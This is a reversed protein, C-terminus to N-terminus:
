QVGNIKLRESILAINNRIVDNLPDLCLAALYWARSDAIRGLKFYLRGIEAFVIVASIDTSDTALSKLISIADKLRGDDEMKAVLSRVLNIKELSHNLHQICDATAWYDIPDPKVMDVVPAARALLQAMNKFTSGGVNMVRGHGLILMDVLAEKVSDSGRYVNSPYLRGDSDPMTAQWNTSLDQKQVYHSKKRIRVNPNCAARAETREDDSCVFFSSKSYRCTLGDVEEDSYGVKLDTRRLHIGYFPKSGLDQLLFSRAKSRIGDDIRTRRIAKLLSELPIWKPILAPYFFIPRGDERTKECFSEISSFQYASVFEEGLTSASLADHTFCQYGHSQDRYTSLLRSDIEWEASFIEDFRAGCWTNVPWGIRFKSNLEAALALGSYLANLRNGLGGDCFILLETTV